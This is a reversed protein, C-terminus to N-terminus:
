KTRFENISIVSEIESVQKIIIYKDPFAERFRRLAISATLPDFTRSQFFTRSIIQDYNEELYDEIKKEKNKLFDAIELRLGMGYEKKIWIALLHYISSYRYGKEGILLGCDEGSFEICVTEQEVRGKVSEIEYPLLSFLETIEKSLKKAIEASSMKDQFFNEEIQSYQSKSVDPQTYEDEYNKCDQIEQSDEISGVQVQSAQIPDIQVQSGQTQNTQVSRKRVVIIADQRGFGLFGSKPELAIEYELEEQPCGFYVSANKLAEQITPASFRKM